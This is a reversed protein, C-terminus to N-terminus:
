NNIANLLSNNEHKIKEIFKCLDITALADSMANHANFSKEFLNLYVNELSFQTLKKHKNIFIKNDKVLKKIELYPSYINDSFYNYFLVHNEYLYNLQMKLIAIDYHFYGAVKTEEQYVNPNSYCCVKYPKYKSLFRFLDEYAQMKDPYSLMVDYSIKHIDAASESWNDVRSKMLYKDIVNFKNDTVIFAGEIIEADQAIKSNTELDIVLFDLAVVEEM